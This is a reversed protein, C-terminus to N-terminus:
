AFAPNTINFKYSESCTYYGNLYYYAFINLTIENYYDVSGDGLFGSTFSLSLEADNTNWITNNTQPNILYNGNLSVCLQPYLGPSTDTPPFIDFELAGNTVTQPMTWANVGQAVDLLQSQGDAPARYFDFVLDGSDYNTLDTLTRGSVRNQECDVGFSSVSLFLSLITLLLLSISLTSSM